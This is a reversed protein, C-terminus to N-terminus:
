RRLFKFYQHRQKPLHTRNYYNSFSGYAASFNASSNDYRPDNNARDIQMQLYYTYVSDYPTPVLLETDGNDNEDYDTFGTVKIEAEDQKEWEEGTGDYLYFVLGDQTILVAADGDAAEEPLVFDAVLRRYTVNNCKVTCIIPCDRHTKFIEDWILGDIENLWRKKQATTYGNPKLDDCIQIAQSITIKKM